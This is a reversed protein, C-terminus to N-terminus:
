DAQPPPDMSQKYQKLCARTKKDLAKAKAPSAKAEEFIRYWAARFAAYDIKANGQLDVANGILHRSKKTMTEYQPSDEKTVRDREVIVMNASAMYSLSCSNKATPVGATTAALALAPVTLGLMAFPLNLLRM